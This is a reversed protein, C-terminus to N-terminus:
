LNTLRRVEATADWLSMSRNKRHFRHIKKHCKRHVPVLDTLREKGFREYTRHHLDMPLEPDLCVFCIKPLKSSWYRERVAEWEPSRLYARHAKQKPSLKRAMSETVAQKKNKVIPYGMWKNVLASCPCCGQQSESWTGLCILFINQHERTREM